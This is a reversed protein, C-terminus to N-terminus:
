GPVLWKLNIQVFWHAFCYFYKSVQFSLEGTNSGNFDTDAVGHPLELQQVFDFPLCTSMLHYNLSSSKHLPLERVTYKNYLRHGPNPRPPLVPGKRQPTQAQPKPSAELSASHSRGTAQLSPPPPRGPGLKAPPPRTPLTKSSYNFLFFFM